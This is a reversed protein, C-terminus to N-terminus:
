PGLDADDGFRYTAHGLDYMMGGDLHTWLGSLQLYVKGTGRLRLDFVPDGGPAAFPNNPLGRLTGTMSFTNVAVAGQYPPAPVGVTAAFALDGRYWLREYHADAITADGAGQSVRVSADVIAGPRHPGELGAVYIGEGYGPDRIRFGVGRLEFQPGLHSRQVRLYGATVELEAGPRRAEASTLLGEDRLVADISRRCEIPIRRRVADLELEQRLVALSPDSGKEYFTGDNSVFFIRYAKPMSGLYRIVGEWILADRVQEGNTDTPPRRMVARDVAGEADSADIPVLEVHGSNVLRQLMADWKALLKGLAADVGGREVSTEVDLKLVTARRSAVSFKELLGIADRELQGRLERRVVDSLLVRGGSARVHELLITLPPGEFWPDTTLANTDLAVYLPKLVKM